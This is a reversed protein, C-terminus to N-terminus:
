LLMANGRTTEFLEIVDHNFSVFNLDGDVDGPKQARSRRSDVEAAGGAM